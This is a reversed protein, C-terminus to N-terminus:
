DSLFFFFYVGDWAEWGAWVLVLNGNRPGLALGSCEKEAKTM